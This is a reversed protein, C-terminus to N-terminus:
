LNHAATFLLADLADGRGDMLDADLNVAVTFGNAYAAFYAGFNGNQEVSRWTFSGNHWYLYGEPSNRMAVGPGYFRDGDLQVKVAFDDPNEGLIETASFYADAFLVYDAASIEWGGFSSLFAWDPSLRATSISLPKLVTDNCWTEYDKGTLQEVVLGLILYNANAYYYGSGPDAQLGDGAIFEFQWEKQELRMTPISAGLVSVHATHIGSNHTILQKLTIQQMRADAIEYTAFLESLLSGITASPTIASAEMAKLACVATIAKSLSAVPATATALRGTGSNSVARDNYSVAIAGSEIANERLFDEFGSVLSSATNLTSEDHVPDPTTTDPGSDSAPESPTEEIQTNNDSDCGFLLLMGAILLCYISLYKKARAHNM